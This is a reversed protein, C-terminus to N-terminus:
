FGLGNVFKIKHKGESNRFIRIGKEKLNNTYKTYKEMDGSAYAEDLDKILGEELGFMFANFNERKQEERAKVFSDYMNDYKSM